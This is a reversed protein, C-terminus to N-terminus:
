QRRLLEFVRYPVDHVAQDLAKELKAQDCKPWNGSGRSTIIGGAVYFWQDNETDLLIGITQKPIRDLRRIGMTACSQQLREELTSDTMTDVLAVDASSDRIRKAIKRIHRVQKGASDAM